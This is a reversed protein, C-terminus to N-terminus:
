LNQRFYGVIFVFYQRTCRIMIKKVGTRAFEQCVYDIGQKPRCYQQCPMLCKIWLNYTLSNPDLSRLLMDCVIDYISCKIACKRRARIPRTTSVKYPEFVISQYRQNRVSQSAGQGLILITFARIFKNVLGTIQLSQVLQPAKYLDEWIVNGQCPVMISMIHLRGRWLQQTLFKEQNRNLGIRELIPRDPKM